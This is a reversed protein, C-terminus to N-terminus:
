ESKPTILRYLQDKARGDIDFVLSELAVTSRPTLVGALVAAVELEPLRGQVFGYHTFHLRKKDSTSLAALLDQILFNADARGKTAPVLFLTPTVLPIVAIEARENCTAAAAQLRGYDWCFHRAISFLPTFGDTNATASISDCDPVPEFWYKHGMATEDPTNLVVRFRLDM